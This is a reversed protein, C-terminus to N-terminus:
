RGDGELSPWEGHLAEHLRLRASQWRRKVTRLSTQLVVAAEPQSLGEYLLLDFIEREDDPLLEIRAHFESWELVNSPEGSPDASRDEDEGTYSVVRSAAERALDRLVWRIQRAALGVFARVDPPKVHALAGHLRVLAKQLVDDTEDFGHLYSWRSFMKRALQRCRDFSHQLLADRASDQGSNLQDLLSQMHTSRWEDM